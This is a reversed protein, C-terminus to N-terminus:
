VLEKNIFVYRRTLKGPLSALSKGDASLAAVEPKVLLRLCETYGCDEIERCRKCFKCDYKVNDFDYPRNEITSMRMHEPQCGQHQPYTVAMCTCVKVILPDPVYCFEPMEGDVFTNRRCQNM